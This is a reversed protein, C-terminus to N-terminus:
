VQTGRLHRPLTQRSDPSHHRTRRSRSEPISGKRQIPCEKRFSNVTDTIAQIWSHMEEPSDAQVLFTRNTTIVEFLNDRPLDGTYSKVHLIDLLSIVKIPDTDTNSKYYSLGEHDLVFYRRKWNKVVAGQKVCFGTKVPKLGLAQKKRTSPSVKTKGNEAESDSDSMEIPTKVVMGGVIEARYGGPCPVRETNEEQKTVRQTNKKPVTIKSANNISDVWGDMDNEDNAQMFYHRSNALIAFCFEIKPRQKRADFVNQIYSLNIQCVPATGDPLNLPNDMYYELLGAAKDLLLYRRLFKGSREKEEIDLFGCTRGRRDLYPM